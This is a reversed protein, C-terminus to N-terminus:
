LENWSGINVTENSDGLYKESKLYKYYLDTKKSKKGQLCMNCVGLCELIKDYDPSSIFIIKGGFDKKINPCDEECFICPDITDTM